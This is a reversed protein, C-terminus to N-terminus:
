GLRDISDIEPYIGRGCGHEEDGVDRRFVGSRNCEGQQIANELPRRPWARIHQM